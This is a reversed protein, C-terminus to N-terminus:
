PYDLKKDTLRTLYYYQNPLVKQAKELARTWASPYDSILRRGSIRGTYAIAQKREMGSCLLRWFGIACLEGRMQKIGSAAGRTEPNPAGNKKRLDDLSRQFAEHLEEDSSFLSICFPIVTEYGYEITDGIEPLDSEVPWGAKYCTLAYLHRAFVHRFSMTPLPSPKETFWARVRRNREEAPITLFPHGPWEPWLTYFIGPWELPKERLKHSEVYKLYADFTAGGTTRRFEVISKRWSDTQRIRGLEYEHCISVESKPLM